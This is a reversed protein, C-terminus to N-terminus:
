TKKFQSKSIYIKLEKAKELAAELNSSWTQTHDIGDRALAEALPNKIKQINQQNHPPKWLLTDLNALRVLFKNEAPDLPKLLKEIETLKNQLQKNKPNIELYAKLSSLSEAYNKLKCHCEVIGIQAWTSTLDVALAQTYLELAHDFQDSLFMIEARKILLIPQNGIHKQLMEWAQNAEKLKMTEQLLSALEFAKLFNEGNEIKKHALFINIIKEFEFRAEKRSPFSAIVKADWAKAIRPSGALEFGAQEVFAFIEHAEGNGLENSIPIKFSHNGTGIGATKLDERFLNAIGQGILINQSFLTVVMQEPPIGPAYAWGLAHNEVISDLHGMVSFKSPAALDKKM